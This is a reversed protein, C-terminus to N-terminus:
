KDACRIGVVNNVQGAKWGTERWRYVGPAAMSLQWEVPQGPRKMRTETDYRIVLTNETSSVITASMEKVMGLTTKWPRDFIFQLHKGDESFVQRTRVNNPDCAPQPSDSEAWWGSLHSIRFALDKPQVGLQAHANSACGFSIVLAAMTLSASHSTTRM